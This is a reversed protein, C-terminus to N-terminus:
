HSPAGRSRGTRACEKGVPREDSSDGEPEANGLGVREVLNPAGVVDEREGPLKANLVVALDEGAIERRVALRALYERRALRQRRDGGDGREVVLDSSCVDSSWDSIRM